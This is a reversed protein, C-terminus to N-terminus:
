CPPDDMTIEVCASGSQGDPDTVVLCLQVASGGCHFPVNARPKWSMAATNGLTVDAPPVGKLIWKFALPSKGDPDVAKGKLALPADPNPRMNNSPKEIVVVPPSNPPAVTVTLVRTDTGVKGQSDKGTLKLTRTGETAFSVNTYCGTVPVFDSVKSSTWKLSSCPLALLPENPDFSSGELLVPTNKFIKQGATPKVITVKPGANGVKVILSAKAKAGTIDTATLTIVRDGPTNFSTNVLDSTGLVGDKNSKWQVLCCKDGDEVDTVKAKLTVINLGGMGVEEGAKPSLIEISPPRNVKLRPGAGRWHDHAEASEESQGPFFTHTMHASYWFVLDSEVNEDNDYGLNGTAGFAWEGDEWTHYRRVQVDDKGFSDTTGDEPGPIVWVGSGTQPDKVFWRRNQTHGFVNKSKLAGGEISIKHPPAAKKFVIQTGVKEAPGDDEFEWVENSFDAVDFDLRWYPHHRHNVPMVVGRSFVHPDIIGDPGFSWVQYIRYDGIRALIGLELWKDEGVTHEQQCLFKNGCNSIKLLCYGDIEGSCSSDDQIKDEYPGCGNDYQVRMVPLSGKNLVKLGDFTVSSIALGAEDTVDYDFSWGNWDIHGPAITDGALAMGPSLLLVLALATKVNRTDIRM